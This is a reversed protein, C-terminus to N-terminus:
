RRKMEIKLTKRESEKTQKRERAIIGAETNINILGVVGTETDVRELM